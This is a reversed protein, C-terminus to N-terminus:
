TNLIASGEGLSFVFWSLINLIKLANIGYKIKQLMREDNIWYIKCMVHLINIAIWILFNRITALIVFEEFLLYYLSLLLTQWMALM